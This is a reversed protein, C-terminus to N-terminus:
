GGLCFGAAEMSQAGVGRAHGGLRGHGVVGRAAIDHATFGKGNLLFGISHSALFSGSLLPSLAEPNM